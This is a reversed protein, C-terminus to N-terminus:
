GNVVLDRILEVNRVYIEMAQEKLDRAKNSMMMSPSASEAWRADGGKVVADSRVGGGGGGVGADAGGDGGSGAGAGARM